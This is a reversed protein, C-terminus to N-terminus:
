KAVNSRDRLRLRWFVLIHTLIVLPVVFSPLMPGPFGLLGAMAPIGGDFLLIRQATVLVVLIDALGLANWGFVIARGRARTAAVAAVIAGLGAAIDGWGAITVFMPHLEGRVGLWLFAVGIPARVAHALVFPWLPASALVAHVAPSRRVVVLSTAMAVLIMIPIAPPPMQRMVGSLAFVAAAAAWGGVILWLRARGEALFVEGRISLDM